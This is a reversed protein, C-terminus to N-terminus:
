SLRRLITESVVAARDRMIDHGACVSRCIAGTNRALWHSAATPILRDRVGHFVEFQYDTAALAGRLDVQELFELGWLLEEKGLAAANRVRLVVESSHVPEQLMGSFFRALAAEPDRLLLRRLVVLDAREMGWPFEDRVIFSPTAALLVLAPLASKLHAVLSLVAMAGLSWGVVLSARSIIHEGAICLGTEGLLARASVVQGSIGHEALRELLPVFAEGGHAWGPVCLVSLSNSM